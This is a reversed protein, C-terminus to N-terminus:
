NEYVEKIIWYHECYQSRKNHARKLRKIINEDKALAREKHTIRSKVWAVAAGFDYYEEIAKMNKDCRTIIYHINKSKKIKTIPNNQKYEPFANADEAKTHIDIQEFVFKLMIADDLANHRQINNTKNYYNYVKNLGILKVLGFHNQVTPAYDRLGAFLYGLMAKERFNKAKHFNARVFSTDSNGYCYFVPMDDPFENCWNFFKEFVSDSTEAQQLAENTIGTLNTIFDTVKKNPNVLSYFQDGNERVCGISIIENSFQNAEFDIFYNM